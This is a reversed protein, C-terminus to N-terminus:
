RPMSPCRRHCKYCEYVRGVFRMEGDLLSVPTDGVFTPRGLKGIVFSELTQTALHTPQLCRTIGWPVSPLYQLFRTLFFFLFSRLFWFTYLGIKQAGLFARCDRDSSSNFSPPFFRRTCHLLSPFANSRTRRNPRPYGMIGNWERATGHTRRVFRLTM